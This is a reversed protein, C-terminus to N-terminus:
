RLNGLTFMDIHDVVVNAVSSLDRIRAFVTTSYTGPSILGSRHILFLNAYGDVGAARKLVNETTVNGTSGNVTLYVDVWHDRNDANAIQVSAQGMVYGTASTAVQTTCLGTYGTGLAITGGNIGTFGSPITEVGTPGLPGTTGTPGTPGTPGTGLPGTPGTNAASGSLGTPGQAGTPGNQTTGVKGIGPIYSYLPPGSVLSPNLSM